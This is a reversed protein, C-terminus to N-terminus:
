DEISYEGKATNEVQVSARPLDVPVLKPAIKLGHEVMDGLIGAYRM